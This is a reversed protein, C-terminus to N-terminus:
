SDQEITLIFGMKGASGKGPPLGKWGFGGTNGVRGKFIINWTWEFGNLQTPVDGDVYVAVQPMAGYDSKGEAKREIRYESNGITALVSLLSDQNQVSSDKLSDHQECLKYSELAQDFQGLMVLTNGENFLASQHGLAIASNYDELATCVKLQDLLLNGRNFYGEMMLQPALQIGESYDEVAHESNGLEAKANGRNFYIWHLFSHQASSVGELATGLLPVLKNAIAENYDQVAGSFDDRACKANGRLFYLESAKPVLRICESYARIAEIFDGNQFAQNGQVYLWQPSKYHRLSFSVKQSESFGQLDQFLSYHGKDLLELDEIIGLKDHKSIVIESVTDSALPVLPRGIIFVSRQRLIRSAADGSLRPEWFSLSPLSSVPSFIVEATQEDENTPVGAVHLPDHTNLIFVKGDHADRQCAFWLAVLPDRTFDLLGTAAGFHQMKALLQMDSIIRSDEVDFGQMRAPELLVDKHYSVYLQQFDPGQIIGKGLENILRRTAGSHLPWIAEGQGRYAYFGPKSTAERIAALYEEFPERM